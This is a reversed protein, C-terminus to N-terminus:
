FFRALGQNTGRGVCMDLLRRRKGPRRQSLRRRRRGQGSNKPPPALDTFAVFANACNFPARELPNLVSRGGGAGGGTMSCLRAHLPKREIHAETMAQIKGDIQAMVQDLWAKLVPLFLCSNM